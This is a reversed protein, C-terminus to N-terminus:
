HRNKYIFPFHQSLFAFSPFDLSLLIVGNNNELNKHPSLFPLVLGGNETRLEWRLRQGLLFALPKFCLALWYLHDMAGTAKGELIPREISECSAQWLSLSASWKMPGIGRLSCLLVSHSHTYAKHGHALSKQGKHHKGTHQIMNINPSSSLKKAYM